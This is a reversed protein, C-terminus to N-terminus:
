EDVIPFVTAVPLGEAESPLSPVFFRSLSTEPTVPRM